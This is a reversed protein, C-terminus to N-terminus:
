GEDCYLDLELSAGALGLAEIVDWPFVLGFHGNTSSGLGLVKLEWGALRLQAVARRRDSLIKAAWALHDELTDSAMGRRELIWARDGATDTPLDVLETAALGLAASVDQPDARPHYFCLSGLSGRDEENM